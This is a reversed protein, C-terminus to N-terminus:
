WDAVSLEWATPTSVEMAAFEAVSSTDERQYFVREQLADYDFYDQDLLTEIVYGGPAGQTDASLTNTVVQDSYDDISQLLLDQQDATAIGTAALGTVLGMVGVVTKVKSMRNM